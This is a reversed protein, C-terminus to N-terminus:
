DNKKGMKKHIQGVPPRELHRLQVQRWSKVDNTRVSLGEREWEWQTAEWVEWDARQDAGCRECQKHFRGLPKVSGGVSKREKGETRAM